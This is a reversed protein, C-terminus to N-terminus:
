AATHPFPTTHTARTRERTITALRAVARRHARTALEDPSAVLRCEATVVDLEAAIVPWEAEIAALEAPTPDHPYM